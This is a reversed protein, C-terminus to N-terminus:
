AEERIYLSFGPRKWKVTRGSGTLFFSAEGKQTPVGWIQYPRRTEAFPNEL